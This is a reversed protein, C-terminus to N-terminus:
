VGAGLGSSGIALLTAEVDQGRKLLAANIQSWVGPPVRSKGSVWKGVTNKDVELLAAMPAVYQEGFLARGARDFIDFPGIKGPDDRRPDAKAERKQKEDLVLRVIRRVFQVYNQNTKPMLGFVGSPWLALGSKDLERMIPSSHADADDLLMRVIEPELGKSIDHTKM